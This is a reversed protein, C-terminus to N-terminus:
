TMVTLMWNSVKFQVECMFGNFETHKLDITLMQCYSKLDVGLCELGSDGINPVWRIPCVIPYVILFWAEYYIYFCLIGLSQELRLSEKITAILGDFKEM